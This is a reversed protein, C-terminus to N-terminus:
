QIYIESLTTISNRMPRLFNLVIDWNLPHLTKVTVWEM